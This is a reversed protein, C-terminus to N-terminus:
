AVEPSSADTTRAGPPVSANGHQLRGLYTRTWWAIDQTRITRLLTAHRAKREELPMNIARAIANAIDQTDYPNVILAETLQEAAGAFHSLILVGPDHASQAAVFEKAVLNMGDALPTVLCIDARRMLQAVRDRPVANSLLRIPMWDVDGHRGNVRGALAELEARIDRYAGLGERSLAAIQLFTARPDADSRDGLYREFGQFRETLGKSYDLREVGIILREGTPLDLMPGADNRTAVRAFEDPDIGIPFSAVSTVRRGKRVRGTLLTETEADGRALELFAAVDRETQLGILDFATLWDLFEDGQPLAPLDAALPFPTHLFFGIRNGIGLARLAQALPFFHYDQVWILDDSRLEDALLRAVRMNVSLYLDAYETRFDILGRRRHMLPWLVSNAYGLYFGDHEQPTIEFVMREYAGSGVQTLSTSPQAVPDPACGVWLGGIESLCDHLAVVLGGSPEAETPIRNSIVVLRGTM